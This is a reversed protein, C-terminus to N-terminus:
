VQILNDEVLLSRLEEAQSHTIRNHEEFVAIKDLAEEKSYAGRIILEKLANYM